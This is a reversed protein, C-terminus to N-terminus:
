LFRRFYLFSRLASRMASFGLYHRCSPPGVYASAMQIGIIAGSNEEGFNNPTAHILCPYIPACGFGFLLDSLRSSNADTSPLLLSPDRLVFYRDLLIMKRDVLKNMVFGGLFRGVTIGIFFLSAFRAARDETVGKVEVMYTSAWNM